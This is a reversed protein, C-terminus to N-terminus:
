DGKKWIIRKRIRKKTKKWEEGLLDGLAAYEKELLEFRERETYDEDSRVGNIQRQADLQACTILHKERLESLDTSLANIQEDCERITESIKTENESTAKSIEDQTEQIIRANELQHEDSIKRIESIHDATMKQIESLHDESMKRMESDKEACEEKLGDIESMLESQRKRVQRLTQELEGSKAKVEALEPILKELNGNRKELMLMYQEVDMGSEAVRARLEDLKRREEEAQEQKRREEEARYSAELVPQMDKGYQYTLFTTMSVFEAFEDGIKETFPSIENKDYEIRYGDGQYSAIYDYLELAGKFNVNMKLANTRTIPPKLMPSAAVKKMLPTMLFAAILHREEELKKLLGGSARDNSLGYPDEKSQERMTAKYAITRKGIQIEKETDFEAQYTNGLEIIKSYRIEIFDRLYCLLMYLFRNEYVAYDSLREVVFLKDPILKGDEKPEHTMLESHKALHEVSGKSVRRAKEIPVVEGQQRIFQREEAIAKEIYTLGEYIKNVWDEEIICKSSVTLLRDNEPSAAKIADRTRTCSINGKTVKRYEIFARYLADAQEM